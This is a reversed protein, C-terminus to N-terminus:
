LFIEKSCTDSDCAAGGGVASVFVGDGGTAGDFCEPTIDVM